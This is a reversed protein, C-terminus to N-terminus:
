KLIYYGKESISHFPINQKECSKAWYKQLTKYNSADAVVIKPKLEQIMRDLNIKPSQTLLILTPNINKPYVGTSDLILINKENFFATNKIKEKSRLVSFNATLYSQLVTNIRSEKRISDNTYLIVKTGQRETIMTNKKLNFIVLEKQNQINWQTKM